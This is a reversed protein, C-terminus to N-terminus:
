DPPVFARTLSRLVLVLGVYSPAVVVAAYFAAFGSFLTLFVGYAAATVVSAALLTITWFRRNPQSTRWGPALRDVIARVVFWM